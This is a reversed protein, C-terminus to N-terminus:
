VCRVQCNSKLILLVQAICYGFKRVQIREIYKPVYSHVIRLCLVFSTSLVFVKCQLAKLEIFM